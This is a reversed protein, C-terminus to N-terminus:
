HPWGNKYYIDGDDLNVLGIGIFVKETKEKYTYYRYFLGDQSTGGDFNSDLNPNITFKNFPFFYIHQIIRGGWSIEVTYSSLFLFVVGVLGLLVSKAKYNKITKISFWVCLISLATYLLVMYVPLFFYQTNSSNMYWIDHIPTYHIYIGMM